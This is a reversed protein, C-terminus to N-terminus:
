GGLQCRARELTWAVAPDDLLRTPELDPIPTRRHHVLAEILCIALDAEVDESTARVSDSLGLYSVREFAGGRGRECDGRVGGPIESRAPLEPAPALEREGALAERLNQSWDSMSREDGPDAAVLVWAAAARMHVVEPGPVPFQAEPPLRGGPQLAALWARAWFTEREAHVFVPDAPWDSESFADMAARLALWGEAFGADLPPPRYSIGLMLQSACMWGFAPSEDCRRIGSAFGDGGRLVAEEATAFYCEGRFEPNTLCDCIRTAEPRGAREADRARQLLNQTDTTGESGWAELDACLMEDRGSEAVGAAPVTFLHPRKLLLTCRERPSERELGQCLDGSQGGGANAVIVKELMVMQEVEDPIQNIRVIASRPDARWLEGIELENVAADTVADVEDRQGCGAPAALVLTALIPLPLPGVLPTRNLDV